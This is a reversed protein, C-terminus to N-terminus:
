IHILSLHFYRCKNADTLDSWIWSGHNATICKNENILCPLNIRSHPINIVGDDNVTAEYEWLSIKRNSTVVMDEYTQGKHVYDAGSCDANAGDVRGVVQFYISTTTDPLLRHITGKPDVYELSRWMEECQQQSVFIQEDTKWLEATFINHSWVGCYYPQLSEIVKCQRVRIPLDSIRQLLSFTANRQHTPEMVKACAQKDKQMQVPVRGRPQTCDYGVLDYDSYLDSPPAGFNPDTPFAPLNTVDSRYPTDPLNRIPDAGDGKDLQASQASRKIRMFANMLPTMAQIDMTPPLVPQGPRPCTAKCVGVAPQDCQEPEPVTVKHEDITTMMFCRAQHSIRDFNTFM